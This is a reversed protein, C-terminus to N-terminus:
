KDLPLSKKLEYIFSGANTSAGQMVQNGGILLKPMVPTRKILMKYDEANQKIVQDVWDDAFAIEFATEGVRKIAETKAAAPSVTNNRFLWHHYSVFKEPDARWVALAYQAFECANAHDHVEAPLHRNCSQNLPIPLVIVALDDPYSRLAAEIYGDVKGCSECTYDFYKVVVNRADAKGLHPLAEVRYSKHGNIFPVLRGEGQQHIEMGVGIGKANGSENLEDMRHSPPIPGFIQILALLGVAVGGLPAATMCERLAGQANLRFLGFATLAGISHTVICYKCFGSFQFAQLGMFWVAAGLLIWAAILHAMKVSPSRWRLSIALGLYVFFSPLSVPISGFIVSWRSGLINSCHSGKGCGALTDIKGTLKQYTLWASLAMALVCLVFITWRLTSGNRTCPHTM